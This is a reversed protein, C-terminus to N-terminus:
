SNFEGFGKEFLKVLENIAIESDQGTTKITIKEGKAVALMLLELISKANVEKGNKVIFIDANFTNAKEVIAAAVRAHIGFENKIVIEKQYM